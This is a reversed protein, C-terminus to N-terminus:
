KGFFKHSSQSSSGTSHNSNNSMKYNKFLFNVSNSQMLRSTSENGKYTSLLNGFNGIIINIGEKNNNPNNTNYNKMYNSRNITNNKQIIKKIFVYNNTKNNDITKSNIPTRPRSKNKMGSRINNMNSMPSTHKSLFAGYSSKCRKLTPSKSINNKKIILSSSNNTKKKYISTSLNPTKLRSYKNQQQQLLSLNRFPSKRGKASISYNVDKHNPTLSRKINSPSQKFSSHSLELLNKNTKAFDKKIVKSNNKANQVYSNNMYIELVNASSASRGIRKRKTSNASLSNPSKTFSKYTIPVRHTSQSITSTSSSLVITNTNKITNKSITDMESVIKDESEDNDYGINYFTFNYFINQYNRDNKYGTYRMRTDMGIKDGAECYRKDFNDSKDPLFPANLKKEYLDNWPYYKIWPHEKLEQAGRFGLRQEPKRMLLKNIFDAADESWGDPINGLKICAQKSM